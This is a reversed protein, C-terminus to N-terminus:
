FMTMQDNAPDLPHISIEGTTTIHFEDRIPIVKNINNSTINKYINSINQTNIPYYEFNIDHFLVAFLWVELQGCFFYTLTWCM